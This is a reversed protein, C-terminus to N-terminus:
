LEEDEEDVELNAVTSFTQTIMRDIYLVGELHDFEHQLIRAPWGSWQVEIPDGKRDLGSVKVEHWRPVVAAMRHVSLCGEYFHVTDEGIPELTPNIFVHLPVTPKEREEEDDDDFGGSRDELVFLRLPIGIQPAAVGVGPANRMVDIMYDILKEFDPTGIDSLSVPSAPKRLVPHGTQVIAERATKARM